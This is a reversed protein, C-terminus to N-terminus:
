AGSTPRGAIHALAKADNLEFETRTIEILNDDSFRYLVRCVVERTTGIRAAMEDLTLDRKVPGPASDEYEELLLAALRGSVPQFALDEVIESARNMRSVMIRALQWLM